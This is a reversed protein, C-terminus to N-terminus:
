IKRFIMLIMHSSFKNLVRILQRKFKKVYRNKGKYDYLKQFMPKILGIEDKFGKLGGFPKFYMLKFGYKEFDKKAYSPDLVFQYFDNIKINKEFNRYFKLKAKLKRLPSMYPYTVFLFGGKKLVRYVEKIISDYGEFFHEIVGLSWYGDFFNDKFMLNRVDGYFVNLEPFYENIKKVTEEASDVGFANYGNYHLCYVVGGMGCGGEIIKGKRLFNHTNNLIFKNNKCGIVKPKFDDVSWHADWFAPSAKKDILVLRKYTKDYYRRM